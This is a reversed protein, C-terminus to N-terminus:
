PLAEVNVFFRFRGTQHVGLLWQVSISEGPPLPASLTITGASLSSNLGGGLSQAPTADLTTGRVLVTAGDTEEDGTLMVTIDSSSLARLDSQPPTGVVPSNLTSSDIIRFRLRTVNRGTNNTITRRFSLTGNAGNTVPTLNRVRNPAATSSQASDLLSTSMTSNREVPSSLNEPAPAGLISVINSFTAGTTSVLDFDAANNGTDQPGGSTLKRVFCFEANDTVGGSPVLGTGERLRTDTESSFGVSDLRDGSALSNASRYLVLGGGDALNLSGYDYSADGGAYGELSYGGTSDNVLLYHGRAPIITGNPITYWVYLTGDSGRALLSWGPTNDTTAVIVPSNTDNYLEVYEDREGDPGRFRFESFIVDGPQTLRAPQWTPAQEDATDTTLRTQNTGDANMVYIDRDGYFGRAYAIKTGDPSWAPRQEHVQTATVNVQDSGDADMVCIDDNDYSGDHNTCTFVIKTGDPSWSPFYDNSWYNSLNVLGSGDANMRYIELNGDRDTTFALKTGDPSWSPLYDYATNNTLRTQNTGDANMVYIEANGDQLSTFALQTGVPSWAPRYDFVSNNNLRVRNTGDANIVEIGTYGYINTRMVALKTGDPSWVPSTDGATGAILAHASGVPNMTNVEWTNGSWKTYALKGNITTQALANHTTSFILGLMLASVVALCSQFLFRM